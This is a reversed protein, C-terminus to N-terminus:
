YDVGLIGPYKVSKNFPSDIETPYSEDLYNNGHGANQGVIVGPTHGYNLDWLYSYVKKTEKSANPNVPQSTSVSPSEKSCCTLLGLCAMITLQLFLNKM